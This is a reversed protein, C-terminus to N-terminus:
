YMTNFNMLPHPNQGNIYNSTDCSYTCTTPFVIDFALMFFDLKNTLIM